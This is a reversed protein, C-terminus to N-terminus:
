WSIFKTDLGAKVYRGISIAMRLRPPYEPFEVSARSTTMYVKSVNPEVFQIVPTFNLEEENKLEM